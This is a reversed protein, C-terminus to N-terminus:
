ATARGPRAHHRRERAQAALQDALVAEPVTRYGSGTYTWQKLIVVQDDDMPRGWADLPPTDGYRARHRWSARAQRLRTLTTSYHRSKTSWHGGFGLMHAWRRLKLTALDPHGGLKWCARVLERVHPALPLEDIQEPKLPRDLAPGFSETAKTAYKAIYGAVHEASLQGTTTTIPRLELQSGWRAILPSRAGMRPCPAFVREAAARIAQELLEVTFEAPPPVVAQPDDPQTGDLRIVAHFHVAGRAQYEAVKAFSIRVQRRLETPRLGTLRALERYTYETTRRWLEPALANWLVLGQYDFCARCLAHGLEPDDLTHRKFCYAPRGHRCAPTGHRPRCARVRGGRERRTHVPGFSPATFTAFVAPHAAVHAPTGKGGRLGAKILQYTDARYVEACSPCRAARRNGCAVLLTRDPEGDSSYVTRVEGTTLDVHHTQGQLRIPQACCGTNLIQQVRRRAALTTPPRTIGAPVPLVAAPM